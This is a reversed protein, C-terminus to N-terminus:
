GLLGAAWESNVSVRENWLVGAVRVGAIQNLYSVREMLDAVGWVDAEVQVYRDRYTRGGLVLRFGRDSTSTALQQPRHGTEVLFHFHGYNDVHTWDIEPQVRFVGSRNSDTWLLRDLKARVWGPEQSLERGIAEADSSPNKVLFRLLVREPESLPLAVPFSYEAVRYVEQHEMGAVSRIFRSETELDRSFFLLALNPGLSGPLGANLIIDTVFPIRRSLTNAVGLPRDANALVGAWVWEGGLLPPVVLVTHFARIVGGDTLKGVRRRFDVATLGAQALEAENPFMAREESLRVAALDLPELIM